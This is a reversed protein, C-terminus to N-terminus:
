KAGYMGAEGLAEVGGVQLVLLRQQVLQSLATPLDWFPLKPDATRRPGHPSEPGNQGLIAPEATVGPIPTVVSWTEAAEMPVNTALLRCKASLILLRGM